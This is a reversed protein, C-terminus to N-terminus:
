GSFEHSKEILLRLKEWALGKDLSEEAQKLAQEISSARDAAYLAFASNIIVLERGRVKKGKLIDRCLEQSEQPGCVRSEEQSRRRFGFQEPRIKFEKLNGDKWEWIWTDDSLSVEDMGDNGHVALAHRSGLNALVKVMTQGLERAFVGVLQNTAGAPNTLPGLINFITRIGIERRPVAAYKMAKHMAPAFLFAIGVQNLCKEMTAPDASINVGLQELLDASGCKSSVSRNGHKAVKVDLGAAILASLTSVNLSSKSDGGTGCTDLIVGDGGRVKVAFRRMITAAGTIEEVTEGKIGLGTIFSAIQSPSATGEMIETFVAETMERSLDKGAVVSKIGDRIM